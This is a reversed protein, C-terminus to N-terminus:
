VAFQQIFRYLAERVPKNLYDILRGGVYVVVLLFSGVCLMLFSILVRELNGFDGWLLNLIALVASLIMYAVVMSIWVILFIRFLPILRYTGRLLLRGEHESIKGYFLFIGHAGFINKVSVVKPNMGLIVRDGDIHGYFETAGRVYSSFLFPPKRLKVISDSIDELFSERTKGIGFSWKRERM